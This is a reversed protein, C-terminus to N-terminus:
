KHYTIYFFVSDNLITTASGGTTAICYTSDLYATYVQTGAGYAPLVIYETSASDERAQVTWSIIQGFNLGHTLFIATSTSGSLKGKILKTGITPAGAGGKFYGYNLEFGSTSDVRAILNTNSPTRWNWGSNVATIESLQGNIGVNPYNVQDGMRLQYADPLIIDGDNTRLIGNVIIGKNSTMSSSLSDNFYSSGFIIRGSQIDFGIWMIFFSLLLFAFIKKINM